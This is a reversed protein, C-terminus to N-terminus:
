RCAGREILYRAVPEGAGCGLDLVPAGAAALTWSGTSGAREILGRHRGRDFGAAEAEYVARDAAPSAPDAM